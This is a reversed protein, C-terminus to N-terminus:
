KRRLFVFRHSGLWHYDAKGLDDVLWPDSDSRDVVFLSPGGDALAVPETGILLYDNNPQDTYQLRLQPGVEAPCIELGLEQARKYIDARTAGAPFGLAKVSFSVLDFSKQEGSFSVNVLMQKAYSGVANGKGELAEIATKADRISPNNEITRYFVKKNPFEEYTHEMDKPLVRMAEPTWEGIYAKTNETISEKTYAIQSPACDFLVCIDEKVSRGKRIEEIRPDKQYGFGVISGRTEYLFELDEKTLAVKDKIKREIETLRKMDQDKKLYQEKDPFEELKTALVDSMFPDLNQKYAIGRVEAIKGQEMRIAIRPITPKGDDDLTYYCHFDGGQLQKHATNEGATCWGTGKGRITQVLAPSDSNQSFKRWEGETIPLLHEPVPNMLENAWAYLKTFDEKMLHQEFAQREDSQIDHEFEMKKGEFKKLLADVVYGLAEYNIDPFQKITGKSRKPFEKKEKDFEQLKLINRFIWYKIDDPIYKSDSSAFYDLWQELSSKQDDLVGEANQRKIEDKKEESASKWDGLEGRERMINEQLKWYSETIEEIKTVYENLIKNKLLAFSREDKFLANLRTIYAEIREGRNHPSEGKKRTQVVAREVPKSGPLDPFKRDLFNQM